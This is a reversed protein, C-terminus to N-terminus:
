TKTQTMYHRTKFMSVLKVGLLIYYIFFLYIFFAFWYIFAYDKESSTNFNFLAYRPETADILSKKLALFDKLENQDNTTCIEDLVITTRNEIKFTAWKLYSHSLKLGACLELVDSDVDM